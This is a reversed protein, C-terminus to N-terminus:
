EFIMAAVCDGPSLIGSFGNVPLVLGIGQAVLSALSKLGAM